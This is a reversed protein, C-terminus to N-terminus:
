RRRQGFVGLDQEVTWITLPYFIGERVKSRSAVEERYFGIQLPTRSGAQRIQSEAVTEEYKFANLTPNSSQALHIADNLSLHVSQTYGSDSRMAVMLSLFCIVIIKRLTQIQQLM